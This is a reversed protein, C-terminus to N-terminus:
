SKRLVYGEGPVNRIWAAAESGDELKKRLRWIHTAVTRSDPVHDYGWAAQLLKAQSVVLGPTSALVELMASETKTLIVTADKRAATGAKLDVAWDGVRVVSDKAPAKRRLLAHVRAVLETADFPKALYDDAGAFLGKVRSPVDSHLTLMLIPTTDGDARLREAVEFGSQGPMSADLIVLDPQEEKIKRLGEKGEEAESVKYGAGTLASSVLLRSTAQDDILLIRTYRSM